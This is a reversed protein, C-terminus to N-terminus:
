GDTREERQLQQWDLRRGTVHEYSRRAATTFRRLGDEGGYARGRAAANWAQLADLWTRGDNHEAVFAALALTDSTAKPARPRYGGGGPKRLLDRARQYLANVEAAGVRPSVDLTVRELAPVSAATLTIWVRPVPPVQGTLTFTASWAPTWGYRTSLRSAVRRLQELPGGPTVRQLRRREDPLSVYELMLASVLTIATSLDGGHAVVLERVGEAFSGLDQKAARREVWEEIEGAPVLRGRLVQRRFALLEDDRAAEAAFIRALTAETEDPPPEIEPSMPKGEDLERYDAVLDDLWSGLQSEKHDYAWQLLGSEALQRWIRPQPRRGIRRHLERWMEQEAEPPIGLISETM